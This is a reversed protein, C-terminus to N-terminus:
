IGYRDAPADPVSIVFPSGPHDLTISTLWNDGLHAQRKEMAM